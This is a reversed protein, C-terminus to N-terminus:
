NTNLCQAIRVPDCVVSMRMRSHCERSICSITGRLSKTAVCCARRPVRARRHRAHRTRRKDYEDGRDRKHRPRGRHIRAVTPDVADHAGPALPGCTAAQPLPVPFPHYRRLSRTSPRRAPGEGFPVVGTDRHARRRRGRRRWRELRKRRWRRVAGIRGLRVAVEELRIRGGGTSGEGGGIGGGM